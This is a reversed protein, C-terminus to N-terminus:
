QRPNWRALEMLELVVFWFIVLGLLIGIAMIVIGIWAIVNLVIALILDWGM